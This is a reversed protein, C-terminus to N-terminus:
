AALQILVLNLGTRPELSRALEIVNCQIEIEFVFPESNLYVACSLIFYYTMDNRM